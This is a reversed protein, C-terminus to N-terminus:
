PQVPLPRFKGTGTRLTQRIAKMIPRYKGAQGPVCQDLTGGAAVNGSPICERGLEWIMLGGLNKNKVYNVKESVSRPDNYSIFMDDASNTKDISLYPMRTASDWKYYTPKYYGGVTEERMLEAFGKRPTTEDNWNLPKSTAKDCLVCPPPNSNPNTSLPNCGVPTRIWQQQPSLAGNSGSFQGGQWIRAELSVGLGLKSLPIGASKFTNVVNDVSFMPTGTTAYTKGGDYLASDHWTECQWITAMDYTMINIQDIKDQVSALLAAANDSPTAAVALLPRDLMMKNGSDARTIAKMKAHLENIFTDYSEGSRVPELDIDLGDYGEKLVVILSDILQKRKTANKLVASYGPSHVRPDLSGNGDVWANVSFLVPVGKAHAEIIVKERKSSSVQDYSGYDFNLSGDDKLGAAFHVVHTLTNWDDTNLIGIVGNGHQWDGPLYGTVWPKVIKEGANVTDPLVFAMIGSLLITATMGVTKISM